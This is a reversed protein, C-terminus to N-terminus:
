QALTELTQILMQYLIFVLFQERLQSCTHQKKGLRQRKHFHNLNKIDRKHFHSSWCVQWKHFRHATIIYTYCFLLFGQTVRKVNNLLVTINLSVCSVRCYV